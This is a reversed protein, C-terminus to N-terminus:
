AGQQGKRGEKYAGPLGKRGEKYAGPLEKRGKKYAGTARETRTEADTQAHTDTLRRFPKQIRARLFDPLTGFIM